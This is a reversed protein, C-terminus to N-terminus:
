GHFRSQMSIAGMFGTQTLMHRTVRGCGCGWDLIKNFEGISRQTEIHSLLNNCLKKGNGLYRERRPEGVRIRLRAPPLKKIAGTNVLKKPLLTQRLNFFFDRINEKILKRILYREYKNWMIVDQRVASM